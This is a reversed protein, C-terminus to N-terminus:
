SVPRLLKTLRIECAVYGYLADYPLEGHQGLVTPEELVCELSEEDYYTIYASEGLGDERYFPPLPWQARDWPEFSGALPWLGERLGPDGVFCILIADSSSIGEFDGTIEPLEPGFFYAFVIGKGNRRAVVGRAWGQDRLPIFFRDGERYASYKRRKKM